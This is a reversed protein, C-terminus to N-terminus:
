AVYKKMEVRTDRDNGTFEYWGVENQLHGHKGAFQTVKVPSASVSDNSRGTLFQNAMWAHYIHVQGPRMGPTLKVRAVFEGVDNRFEAFDHDAIGRRAADGPNVFVVPEGRQLRLLLDLDRWMTHISWRTHGCTMTLPYAGGSQPPEKHVPFEEGVEIFFPHDVYFQQRGTATPWAMKKVVMDQYPVLPEDIRYDSTGCWMKGMQSVGTYRMAGKHARLGELTIGRTAPSLALIMRMLKEDERPGIREKDSFRWYARSLDYPVGRYTRVETIERRRAEASVRKMLLSLIEWDAKAEGLPEVVKDGLHLYPPYAISYKFGLKEYPGATPLLIDSHRATDDMRLTVDVVLKATKFLTNELQDGMRRHRFPNGFMNFIIDPKGLEPGPVNHIQGSAIAEELFQEPTRPLTPDNYAPDLQVERTGGNLLMMMSGSIYAPSAAQQKGVEALAGWIAAPDDPTLDSPHDVFAALMKGDLEFFTMEQWGGGMRGNNGTLAAMLIQSRQVLDGHLIKGMAAGAYIMASKATAFERAFRRIVNAHVGTIKAASALDYAALKERMISFGSRLTVKAGSLLTVTAGQPELVPHDDLTLKLTRQEAAVAMSSSSWVVQQRKGDWWGFCEQRGGTVVDAERLFQRTDTRVLLPLDTQEIIYSVDHLNEDVIVKCAALALAADTGPRPSIWLDAHIATPNFDPTISVIKAGRYRVETMFHADPIRTSVPNGFWNVFYDTRFWDDSSAGPVPMGLTSTAGTMLDGVGAFTETVPIGLQNFFRVMAIWSPGFDSNNGNECYAGVGGRTSLTDVLATAIEGLAEDWTIRKWRNEGRAGVRRLPYRVRAPSRYLAAASAGKQCGRPSYDPVSANTQTYPAAQEERWVIGGRVYLNWSCGGSACNNCSHTGVGVRDWSWKKRYVDRYNRYERAGPPMRGDAFAPKLNHLDLLLTAAGVAAGELFRRRSIGSSSQM